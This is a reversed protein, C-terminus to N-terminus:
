EPTSNEAANLQSEIYDQLHDRLQVLTNRGAIASIAEAETLGGKNNLAYGNIMDLQRNIMEIIKIVTATDM